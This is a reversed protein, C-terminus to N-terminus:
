QLPVYDNVSDANSDHTNGNDWKPQEEVTFQITNNLGTSVKFNYANGPALTVTTSAPTTTILKGGYYINVKCSVNAGTMPIILKENASEASSNNTVGEIISEFTMGKAENSAWSGAVTYTKSTSDFVDAVTYTGNTIANTIKVDTLTYTYVGINEGAPTTNELTFKVKSLLHKFEFAVKPNDSALGVYQKSRAYLLDTSGDAAYTITKPLGNETVVTGDVVAAFEYTAGTIWYQTKTTCNWESNPGVEGSVTDDAFIAVPGEQGTVTGWVKFTTLPKDTTGYSPDTARTSNGVFARDFSIAEQNVGVLEEKACAALAALAFFAVFLKKM